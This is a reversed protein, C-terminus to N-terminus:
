DVSKGKERDLINDQGDVLYKLVFFVIALAITGLVLDAMTDAYILMKRAIVFLVLELVAKSSHYLIMYILEIGVILLLGYGLFSQFTNYTHAVDAQFLIFFYKIMDILGILVGIALLVAIFVEIIHSIRQVKNGVYRPRITDIFLLAREKFKNNNKKDM